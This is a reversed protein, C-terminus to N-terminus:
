YSNNLSIFTKMTDFSMQGGATAKDDSVAAYTFPAGLPVCALRTVRGTKGMAFAVLPFDTCLAYLSLVRASDRRHNATSVFKVTDAGQKRCKEIALLMEEVPPTREFDHHSVILRCGYRKAQEAVAHRFSEDAETEVDAFTAGARIAALLRGLREDRGYAGERCAAILPKGISFVEAIEEITLRCLDLRIEAFGFREVAAKVEARSGEGISVCVQERTM